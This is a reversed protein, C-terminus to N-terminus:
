LRDMSCLNELLYIEGNDKIYKERKRRELRM